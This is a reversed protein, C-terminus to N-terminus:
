PRCYSKILAKTRRYNRLLMEEPHRKWVARRSRLIKRGRTLDVAAQRPARTLAQIHSALMAFLNYKNLVLRKAEQIASLRHEYENNDIAQQIRALAVEFDSLDIFVFSDAPFYEVANPAGAYIPLANGLYVDMLKETIHHRNFHNEIAIHYQYPWVAEAKDAIPRVGRGFIDLEPLREHLYETFRYRLQHRTHRQQKVSCVTSILGPKDSVDDAAIEDYTISRDGGIGYFWRLGPQSYIAGPHNIHEPEQSTIVYAYQHLYHHGYLRISSPETTVLLTQEPPCALVEQNYSFRQKGLAPLDDYVVLWDYQTEDQRFSFRCDGWVPDYNPFQRLWISYNTDRTSRAIFKVKIENHRNVM